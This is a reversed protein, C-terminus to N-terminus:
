KKIYAVLVDNPQYGDEYTITYHPNIKKIKKIVTEQSLFDFDQTGFCRVDDILITHTKIPHRRIAELEKMLPTMTEGRATDGGSCHGDLWFTVPEKFQRLIKPLMKSSDGFYLHVNKQGAFKQLCLQYYHPSLEISYVEKFGAVLAKEVGGGSCTGTEVFYKNPYKAFVEKTTTGFAFSSCVLFVLVLSKGKM